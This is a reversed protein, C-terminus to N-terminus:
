TQLGNLPVGADQLANFIAADRGYVDRRFNMEGRVSTFATRYVLHVPVPDDLNLRTQQRTDLIRHFLGRPDDSQRSLLEYAFDFPDNLRVCGNSNARMSNRFLSRTPTDHLYIAYPNPFMFKVLGLPNSPGPPQRFDFPFNRASYAEFNVSGRDVVRGHRDIVQLYSHAYPNEQLASYYNRAVISRPVTWDPNIEMYTMLESFEPTQMERGRQGIISRTEFTVQEFDVIRTTFDALNVWIHRDGRPMNLWREREMAVIVSQLREQPPRNMETITERGAVGDAELGHAAQFRQVAAQVNGDYRAAATREMYGMAILRNRLAIVQPGTEGPRLSGAEIQPGWGGSAIQAELQRKARFLRAYEPAQPVLGRLYASPNAAAFDTLTQLPDPRPVERVINAAVRSPELVGSSLDRAYQLFALSVRAELLGRDRESEVAHFAAVLADADYRNVPLGHEGARHLAALFANRRAADEPGTWIPAYDRSRYFSSLASSTSAGEALAQRFATFQQAMAAPATVVLALLVALVALPMSLRRFALPAHPM